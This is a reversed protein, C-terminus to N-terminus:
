LQRINNLEQLIKQYRQGSDDGRSFEPWRGLQTLGAQTKANWTCYKQPDLDELISTVLNIGMGEVAHSGGRDLIGQLRKRIEVTEDLLFKIASRLHEVDRVLRRRNIPYWKYRGAALDYYELFRVRFDDGALAQIVGPSIWAQWRKHDEHCSRRWEKEAADTLVFMDLLTGVQDDSLRRSDM